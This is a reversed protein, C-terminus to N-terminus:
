DDVPPHIELKWSDHTEPNWLSWYREECFLIAEEETECYAIHTTVGGESVARVSWFSEDYWETYCSDEDAEYEQTWEEDTFDHHLCDDSCYYKLGGGYVYGDAMQKGCISCTRKAM